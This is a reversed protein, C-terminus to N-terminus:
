GGSRDDPLVVVERDGGVEFLAVIRERAVRGSGEDVGVRFALPPDGGTPRGLAVEGPLAALADREADRMLGRDSGPALRAQEWVGVWREDAREHAGARRWLDALAAWYDVHCLGGAQDGFFADLSPATSM